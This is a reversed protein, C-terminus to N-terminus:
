WKQFLKTGDKEILKEVETYFIKNLNERNSAWKLFNKEEKTVGKEIRFSKVNYVVYKREKKDIFIIEKVGEYKVSMFTIEMRRVFAPFELYQISPSLSLLNLERKLIDLSNKIQFATYKALVLQQQNFNEIVINRVKQNLIWGSIIVLSLPILFLYYLFRLIGKKM